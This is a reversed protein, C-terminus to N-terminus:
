AYCSCRCKKLWRLACVPREKWITRMVCGSTSFRRQSHAM